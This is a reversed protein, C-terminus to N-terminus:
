APHGMGKSHYTLDPSGHGAMDCRDSDDQSGKHTTEETCYRLLM